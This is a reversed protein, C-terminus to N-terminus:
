IAKMTRGDQVLKDINPTRIEGGFAGVDSYGLDDAVIYLINPRNRTARRASSTGHGEPSASDGSAPLEDAAAPTSAPFMGMGAVAISTSVLTKQRRLREFMSTVSRYM